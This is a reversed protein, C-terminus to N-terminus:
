APDDASSFPSDDFDLTLFDMPLVHFVAIRDGRIVDTQNAWRLLNSRLVLDKEFSRASVFNRVNLELPNSLVGLFM